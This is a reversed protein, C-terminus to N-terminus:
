PEEGTPREAPLEAIPLEAISPNPSGQSSPQPPASQPAPSAVVWRAPCGALERCHRCGLNAHETLLGALTLILGFGLWLSLSDKWFLIRWLAGGLPFLGIPLLFVNHWIGDTFTHRTDKRYILGAVLGFGTSCRRGHYFCRTCRLGPMILTAAALCYLGYLIALWPHIGGLTWIGITLLGLNFLNRLFPIYFPYNEFEKM